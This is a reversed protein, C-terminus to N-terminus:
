SIGAEWHGGHWPDGTEKLPLTPPWLLTLTKCHLNVALCGFMYLIQCFCFKLIKKSLFHPPRISDGMPWKNSFGARHKPCLVFLVHEDPLLGLGGSEHLVTCKRYHRNGPDDEFTNYLRERELRKDFMRQLPERDAWRSLVKSDVFSSFM